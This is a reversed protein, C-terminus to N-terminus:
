ALELKFPHTLNALGRSSAQKRLRRAITFGHVGGSIERATVPERHVIVVAHRFHADEIRLRADLQDVALDDVHRRAAARVGGCDVVEVLHEHTGHLASRGYEDLIRHAETLIGLRL